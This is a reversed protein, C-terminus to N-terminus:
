SHNLSDCHVCRASFQGIPHLIAELQINHTTNINVSDFKLSDGGVNSTYKSFQLGVLPNNVSILMLLSMNKSQHRLDRGRKSLGERARVESNTWQIRWLCPRYRDPYVIAYKSPNWQCEIAWPTLHLNFIDTRCTNWCLLPVCIINKGPKLPM